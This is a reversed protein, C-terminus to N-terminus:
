QKKKTTLEGSTTLHEAIQNLKINTNASVTSLLTFAQQASIKHREMLIGKAQGILDRNILAANLQKIEQSDAFAVAAHAAVLLGIQECEEDFVDVDGGYVNLAGLNDGEVFLQFSLMSRAGLDWARQAFKPWRPEEGLNPVRVIQETYAADFCPGQRTEGQVIDVDRPLDSSAAFSEITRRARVLSISAETAHPMLRIAASVIDELISESDSEAQLSRALDSLQGAIDGPLGSDGLMDTSDQTAERTVPYAATRDLLDDL